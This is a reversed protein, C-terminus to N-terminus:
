FFMVSYITHMWVVNTHVLKQISCRNKDELQDILEQIMTSKKEMLDNFSKWIWSSLDIYHKKKDECRKKCEM